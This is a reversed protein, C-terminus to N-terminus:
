QCETMGHKQCETLGYKLSYKKAPKQRMKL